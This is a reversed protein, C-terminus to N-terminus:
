RRDFSRNQRRLGEHLARLTTARPHSGAICIQGSNSFINVLSGDVAREMDADDFRHQGVQRGTRLARADFTRCCCDDGAKRYQGARLLSAILIPHAPWRQARSAGSGNVVNITGPPLGAEEMLAVVKLHLAAHIRLAETRLYEWVGPELRDAHQRTGAPCEM